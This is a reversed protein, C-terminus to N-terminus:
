VPNSQGVMVGVTIKEICKEAHMRRYIQSYIFICLDNKKTHSHDKSAFCCKNSSLTRFISRDGHAYVLCTFLEIVFNNQLFCNPQPFLIVENLLNDFKFVVIAM